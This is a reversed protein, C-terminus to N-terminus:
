ATPTEPASGALEQTSTTEPTQTSTAVSAVTQENPSPTSATAATTTSVSAASPLMQAKVDAIAALVPTFDVKSFDVSPASQAQLKGVAETLAQVNQALSTVAAQTGQSSTLTQQVLDEITSM